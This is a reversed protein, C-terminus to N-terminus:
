IELRGEIQPHETPGFSVNQRYDVFVQSGAFRCTITRIFPTDTLCVKATLTDAARWAASGATHREVPSDFSTVGDTWAGNLGCPMRHEDTASELVIELKDGAEFGIRELKLENLELRYTRGSIAAWLPGSSEGEPPRISLSRLRGDLTQRGAVDERLPETGMAPLLHKWALNLVGQMDGVGATTVLVADQEPMVVCFQGFAGDGRFADHRCRWFQYGYGQCWDNNPDDGNAIQRSTAQQVWREPVLRQNGWM